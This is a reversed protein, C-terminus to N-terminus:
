YKLCLNGKFGKRKMYRVWNIEDDKNYKDKKASNEKFWLPQLNLYHFCTKQHAKIQFDFSNCPRIHDIAWEGYNDWNMGESFNNSLHEKLEEISCSVLKLASKFKAERKIAHYLRDRLSKELRYDLEKRKKAGYKRAWARFEESDKRERQKKLYDEPNKAYRIRKQENRREKYESDNNVKNIHDGYDCDWCGGSSTKRRSLHGERECCQGDWYFFSKEKKADARILPLEFWEKPVKEKNKERYISARLRMNAPKGKPREIGLKKLRFKISSESINFKKGLQTMPEFWNEKLYQDDSNTWKKNM